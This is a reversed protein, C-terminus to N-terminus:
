WFFTLAFAGAFTFASYGLLLFSMLRALENTKAMKREVLECLLM